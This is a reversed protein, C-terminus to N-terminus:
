CRGIYMTKYLQITVGQSKWADSRREGLAKGSLTGLLDEISWSSNEVWVSPLFTASSGNAMTLHFGYNDTPKPNSILLKEITMKRWTTRPSLINIYVSLSSLEGSSIPKKWRNAADDRLGLTSEKVNDVTSSNTEYRGISARTNGSTDVIGVFAGNTSRSFISWSPFCPLKKNYLQASLVSRGYALLFQNQFQTIIPEQLYILSLYSVHSKADWSYSERRRSSDTYCTVSGKLGLKSALYALGALLAPSDISTNSTAKTVKNYDPELLSSVVADEKEISDCQSKESHSLDVSVVMADYNSFYASLDPVRSEDILMYDFTHGLHSLLAAPIHLSHEQKSDMVNTPKWLEPKIASHNTGVVLVHSRPPLYIMSALSCIYSEMVGAHPVLILKSTHESSRTYCRKVEDLSNSIEYTIPPNIM